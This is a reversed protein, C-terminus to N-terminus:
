SNPLGFALMCARWAPWVQCRKLDAIAHTFGADKKEILEAAKELSREAEGAFEFGKDLIWFDGKREKELEGKLKEIYVLGRRFHGKGNTADLLIAQRPLLCSRLVLM